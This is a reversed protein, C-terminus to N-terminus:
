YIASSPHLGLAQSWVAQGSFKSVHFFVERERERECVCVCVCICVVRACVWTCMLWTGVYKSVLLWVCTLVYVFMSITVNVSM